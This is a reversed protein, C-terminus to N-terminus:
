LLGLSIFFGGCHGSATSSPGWDPHIGFSLSRFWLAGQVVLRVGLKANNIAKRLNKALSYESSGGVFRFGMKCCVKQEQALNGVVDARETSDWGM